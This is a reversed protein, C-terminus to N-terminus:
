IRPKLEYRLGAGFKRYESCRKFTAYLDGTPIGELMKAVRAHTTKPYGDAINGANLKAVFIGLLEDRESRPEGKKRARPQFDLLFSAPLELKKLVSTQIDEETVYPSM